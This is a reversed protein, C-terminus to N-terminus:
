IQLSPLLIDRSTSRTSNEARQWKWWKTSLTPTGRLNPPASLARLTAPAVRKIQFSHLSSQHRLEDMQQEHGSCPAQDHHACVRTSSGNSWRLTTSLMRHADQPCGPWRHNAGAWQTHHGSLFSALPIRKINRSSVYLVRTKRPLQGIRATVVMCLSTIPLRITSWM